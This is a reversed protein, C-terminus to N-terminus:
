LSLQDLTTSKGITGSLWTNFSLSIRRKTHLTSPVDHQLRSPWILLQQNTVPVTWTDSNCENFHMPPLKISDYRDNFFRISDSKDVDIYLCGSLFSNPHRHVHHKQGILTSNIWSQTVNLTVSDKPQYINKIYIDCQQQVFNKIDFLDPHDLVYTDITVENSVNPRLQTLFEEIVSIENATFPRPMQFQGVATPFLMFIQM